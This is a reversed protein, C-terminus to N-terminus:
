TWNAPSFRRSRTSYQKQMVTTVTIERICRADNTVMSDLYNYYEVNEPQKQDIMIQITSPKRLIKM